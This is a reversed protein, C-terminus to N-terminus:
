RQALEGDTQCELLFWDRVKLVADAFAQPAQQPLNHGADVVRHEHLGVFMRAHDGTGGPKLPDNAGDLTVTPVKITLKQALQNELPELAPDGAELGLVSRYCHIVVEVFDPNEFAVASQAFTAEEFQWNPSWETWLM